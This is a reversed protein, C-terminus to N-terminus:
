YLLGYYLVCVCVDAKKSALYLVFGGGVHDFFHGCHSTRIVTAVHGKEETAMSANGVSGISNEKITM